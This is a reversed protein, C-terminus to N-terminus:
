SSENHKKTSSCVSRFTKPGQRDSKTAIIPLSESTIEESQPASASVERNSKYVIANVLTMFSVCFPANISPALAPHSQSDISISM